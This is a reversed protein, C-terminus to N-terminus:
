RIHRDRVAFFDMRCAQPNCITRTHGGNWYFFCHCMPILFPLDLAYSPRTKRYSAANYRSKKKALYCLSLGFTCAGTAGLAGLLSFGIAILRQSPTVLTM